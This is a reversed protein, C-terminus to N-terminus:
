SLDSFVLSVVLFNNFHIVHLLLPSSSEGRGEGEAM